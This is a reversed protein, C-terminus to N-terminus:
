NTIFSNIIRNAIAGEDAPIPSGSYNFVFMKNGVKVLTNIVATGTPHDTTVGTLRVASIGNINIMSQKGSGFHAATIFQSYSVNADVKYVMLSLSFLDKPGPNGLTYSSPNKYNSFITDGGIYENNAAPGRLSFNNESYTKDIFWNAPYEITYSYRQNSYIQWGMNNQKPTTSSAGSQDEPSAKIAANEKVLESNQKQLDQVQSNLRDVQGQISAVSQNPASNDVAAKQESSCGTVLLALIPFLILLKKM